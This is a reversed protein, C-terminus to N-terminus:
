ADEGKKKRGRRKPAEGDADAKKKRGRKKPAPEEVAEVQEEPEELEEPEEVPQEAEVPEEEIEPTPEPLEEIIVPEEEVPPQDEVVEPAIEPEVAVIEEVPAEVETSVAVQVTSTGELVNVTDGTAVHIVDILEAFERLLVLNARFVPETVQVSRGPAIKISQGTALVVHPLRRLRAGGRSVAVRSTISKTSIRYM